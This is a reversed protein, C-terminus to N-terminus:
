APDAQLGGVAAHLWDVGAVDLHQPDHGAYDALYLFRWTGRIAVDPLYAVSPMSIGCASTRPRLMGPMVLM